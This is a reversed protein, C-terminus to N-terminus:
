TTVDGSARGGHAWAHLQEVLWQADHQPLLAALVVSTESPFDLEVNFVGPEVEVARATAASAADLVDLVARAARRGDVTITTTGLVARVKGRTRLLRILQALLPSGGAVWGVTIIGLLVQAVGWDPLLNWLVGLGVAWGLAGAGLIGAQAQWPLGPDRAWAVVPHGNPDEMRQLASHAPLPAFATRGAPVAVPLNPSHRPPTTM